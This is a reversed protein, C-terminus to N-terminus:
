YRIEEVKSDLQQFTKAELVGSKQVAILLRDRGRPTGAPLRYVSRIPVGNVSGSEITVEGDRGGALVRRREPLEASHSAKPAEIIVLIRESDEVNEMHHGYQALAGIIAQRLARLKEPDYGSSPPGVLGM